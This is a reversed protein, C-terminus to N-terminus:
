ESSSRTTNRVDRTFYTKDRLGTVSSLSALTTPFNTDISSQNRLGSFKFCQAATCFSAACSEGAENSVKFFYVRSALRKESKRARTLIQM